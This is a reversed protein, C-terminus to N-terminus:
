PSLSPGVHLPMKLMKGPKTHWSGWASATQGGGGTVAALIHDATLQGAWHLTGVLFGDSHEFCGSAPDDGAALVMCDSYPVTQPTTKFITFRQYCLARTLSFMILYLINLLCTLIIQPAETFSKNLRWCLKRHACIRHLGVSLEHKLKTNIYYKEKIPTDNPPNKNDRWGAPGSLHYLQWRCLGPWFWMVLDCVYVLVAM